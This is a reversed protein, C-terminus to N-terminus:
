YMYVITHVPNGSPGPSGREGRGGPVGKAGPVGQPGPGGQDGQTFWRCLPSLTCGLM